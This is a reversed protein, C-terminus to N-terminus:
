SAAPAGRYVVASDGGAGPAAAACGKGCVGRWGCGSTLVALATKSFSPDRPRDRTTLIIQRRFFGLSRDHLSRLNGNGFGLFRCRVMAQYSQVGKRELDMKQEATVLSKIYHTSGLAELRLDDDVMVLRHQLDARAFPSGEVKALSGNCMGDGLLYHLVVGIRSKGEGGKGILLMMKQAYNVPILCYGLYEQLTLIDEEELLDQLFQKWLVPEEAEPNYKVPLRNHCCVKRESLKGQFIDLEGNACHLICESYPVEERRAQLRLIEMVGSLKKSLGTTVFNSLYNYVYQKVKGESIWGDTSYFNGDVYVMPYLLLFERCFDAEDQGRGRIWEPLAIEVTELNEM